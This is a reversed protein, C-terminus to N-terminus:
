EVEGAVQVLDLGLRGDLAPVAAEVRQKPGVDVRLGALDAQIPLERGDRVALVCLLTRAPRGWDNLENLAARITRGTHLVDDVLVVIRDDIGGAPLETEGVVPRPGVTALDDRYFTIDLAGVPASVGQAALQEQLLIAIHDGRRRIGLLSILSPDTCSEILETAMQRLADRVAAEDMLSTRVLNM